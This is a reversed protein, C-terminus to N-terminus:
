KKNSFDSKDVMAVFDGMSKVLEPRDEMQPMIASFLVKLGTVFARLESSVTHLEAAVDEYRKQWKDADRGNNAIEAMKVKTNNNSSNMRAKYFNSGFIGLIIGGAASIVSVLTGNDM